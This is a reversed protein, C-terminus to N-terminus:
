DVVALMQETVKTQMLFWFACMQQSSAHSTVVPSSKQKIWQATTGSAEYDGAADAHMRQQTDAANTITLVVNGSVDYGDARRKLSFITLLVGLLRWLM